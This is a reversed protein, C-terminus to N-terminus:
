LDFVVGTSTHTVLVGLLDEQQTAARDWESFVTLGAAAVTLLILGCESSYSIGAWFTVANKPLPAKFTALNLLYLRGSVLLSFDSM